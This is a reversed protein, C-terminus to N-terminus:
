PRIVLLREVKQTSGVTLRYFYVGSPVSSGDNDRLDWTSEHVGASGYSGPLTRVLRGSLDFIQVHASQDRMTEPVGYKVVTQNNFM